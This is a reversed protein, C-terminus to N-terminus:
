IAYRSLFLACSIESPRWAATAPSILASMSKSCSTVALVALLGVKYNSNKNMKKDGPWLAQTQGFKTCTIGGKKLAILLAGALKTFFFSRCNDM